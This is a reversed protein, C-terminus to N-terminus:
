FIAVDVRGTGDQYGRFMAASTFPLALEGDSTLAICGGRGGLATVEDLARTAAATVPAGGAVLSAVRFGFVARVFLEGSGTASVACTADAYTGAGIIPSDGIRGPLKGSIGGTSTAVALAGDSDLAVAGVTDAPAVLAAQRAPVFYDPGVTPFGAQAAFHAAGDGVLLVHGTRASIQRAVAIPHAFGTLAGVAGAVRTRGDMIAADLAVSGDSDRVAGKGANFVGCAELSLVAQEVADLAAGGGALVSWGAALAARLAATVLNADLTEGAVAGAGGHIALVPKSLQVGALIGRFWRDRL